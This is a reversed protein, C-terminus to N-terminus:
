LCAGSGARACPPFHESPPELVDALLSDYVQRLRTSEDGRAQAAADYAKLIAELERNM